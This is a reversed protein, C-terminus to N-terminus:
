AFETNANTIIEKRYKKYNNKSSLKFPFPYLAWNNKLVIALFEIWKGTHNNKIMRFENLFITRGGKEMLRTKLDNEFDQNIPYNLLKYIGNECDTLLFGFGYKKCYEILVEIKRQVRADCMGTLDKVEVFFGTKDELFVIFDPTYSLKIGKKEYELRIPQESFKIVRPFSELYNIFTREIGSEYQIERGCKESYIKGSIYRDDNEIVSRVPLFEKSDLNWKTKKDFWIVQELIRKQSSLVIKQKKLRKTEEKHLKKLKTKQISLFKKIDTNIKKLKGQNPTLIGALLRTTEFFSFEELNEKWFNIILETLDETKDYNKPNLLYHLERCNRSICNTRMSAISIKKLSKNHIQRIRERTLGYLIAVESYQIFTNEEFDYILKLIKSERETIVRKLTKDRTADLSFFFLDIFKQGEPTM